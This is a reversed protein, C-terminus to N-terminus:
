SSNRYTRWALGTSYPEGNSGSCGSKSANGSARWAAMTSTMTSWPSMSYTGAPQYWWTRASVNESDALRQARPTGSSSALAGYVFILGSWDFRGLVCKHYSQRVVLM